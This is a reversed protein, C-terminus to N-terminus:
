SFRFLPFYTVHGAKDFESTGTHARHLSVQLFLYGSDVHVAQHDTLIDNLVRLVAEEEVDVGLYLQGALLYLGIRVQLTPLSSTLELVKM